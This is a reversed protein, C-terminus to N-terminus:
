QRKSMLQGAPFFSNMKKLRVFEYLDNIHADTMDKFCVGFGAELNGLAAQRMWAVEGRCYIKKLTQSFIIDVEVVQGISPSFVKWFEPDTVSVFLGGFGINTIVAEYGEILARCSTNTRYFRGLDYPSEIYSGMLHHFIKRSDFPKAFCGAAGLETYKDQVAEVFATVFYITPYSPFHERIQKLLQMGDLQPMRMDLMVFDCHTTRLFDLVQTPDTMKYSFLGLRSLDEALMDCINPDDDVVLVRPKKQFINARSLSKVVEKLFDAVVGSRTDVGVKDMINRLHNTVTNPSINLRVAIGETSDVETVLVQFVEEERPSFGRHTSYKKLEVILTAQYNEEM